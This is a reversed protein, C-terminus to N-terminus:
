GDWDCGLPEAATMTEPCTYSHWTGSGFADFSADYFMELGEIEPGVRYYTIVPDGEVTPQVVVLEAGTETAGDLCDWPIDPAVVGQDVVYEGCSALPVRDRFAVPAGPDTKSEALRDEFALLWSPLPERPRHLLFEIESEDEAAPTADVSGTCGGLLAVFAVGAVATRRHM